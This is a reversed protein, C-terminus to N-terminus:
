RPRPSRIGNLVLNLLREGTAARESKPLHGTSLAVGHVLRLLDISTVDVSVTGDAQARALLTGATSRMQAACWSFDVPRGDDDLDAMMVDKLGQYDMTHLVVRHLWVSLAESPAKETSFDNGIQCLAAIREHYVADLLARRTPFNRYLTGPGVGASKAIGDLSAGPGDEAFAREAATILRDYNRRADARKPRTPPSLAGPPDTSM